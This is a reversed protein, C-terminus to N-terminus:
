NISESRCSRPFLFPSNIPWIVQFWFLFSISQMIAYFFFHIRHSFSAPIQHFFFISISHLASFSSDSNLRALSLLFLDLLGLDFSPWGMLLSDLDGLFLFGHWSDGFPPAVWPAWTPAAWPYGLPCRGHPRWTPAAWSKGGEDIEERWRPVAIWTWAVGVWSLDSSLVLILDLEASLGWRFSYSCSPSFM